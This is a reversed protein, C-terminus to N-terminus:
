RISEGILVAVGLSLFTIVAVLNLVLIDSTRALKLIIIRVIMWDLGAEPVRTITTM